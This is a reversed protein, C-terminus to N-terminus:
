VHIKRLRAVPIRLRDRYKSVTRRSVDYGADKLRSAIADDSLPRHKDEASIIEKLQAEIERGSVSEGEMSFRESFFYRLPFTGWPTSLYKNNTARSATPIDIGAEAAVDKLAMPRLNAEDETEFYDKQIKMIASMVRFLTDQRRRIIGLFEKAENYSSSIFASDKNKIKKKGKSDQIDRFSKSISLEPIRNALTLKLQGGENELIFDPALHQTDNRSEFGAGPKPNLSLITDIAASLRRDDLHLGSAIKHYHRMSFPVFYNRLIQLADNRQESNGRRELQLILCDQLSFAGVGPPDLQRIIDVVKQLQAEPVERNERFLLDDAITAVSRTLYGNSDLNGIIYEATELEDPSLNFQHLQRILVEYLSEGAEDPITNWGSARPSIESSIYPNRIDPENKQEESSELAPNAEVEARVTEEFEPENMELMRVYRVQTQSLRQLTKQNLTLHQGSAM